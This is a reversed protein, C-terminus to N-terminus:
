RGNDCDTFIAVTVFMNGTLVVTTIYKSVNFSTSALLLNANRTARSMRGKSLNDSRRCWADQSRMSAIRTVEFASPLL